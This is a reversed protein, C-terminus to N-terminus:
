TAGKASGKANVEDMIVACVTAVNTNIQPIEDIRLNKTKTYIEGPGINYRTVEVREILIPPPRRYPMCLFNCLREKYAEDESNIFGYYLTPKLYDTIGDLDDKDQTTGSFWSDDIKNLVTDLITDIKEEGCKKPDEWGKDIDDDEESFREKWHDKLIKDRTIKCVKVYRIKIWGNLSLNDWMLNIRENGNTSEWYHKIDSDALDGGYLSKEIPTTFKYSRKNMDFIIWDNRIKLSIEKNFVDIESQITALFPRRLIMTENRTKLMDIIMFDSSFLFKVIKVLINEVTGLPVKKTMNAMEVIMNTKKLKVLKLHEFMSKPMINISAGLDKGLKAYHRKERKSSTAFIKLNNLPKLHHVTGKSLLKKSSNQDNKDMRGNRFKKTSIRRFEQEHTRGLKAKKELLYTITSEHKTDLHDVSPAQNGRTLTFYQEMTLNKINEEAMIIRGSFGTTHLTPNTLRKKGTTVLKIILSDSLDGVLLKNPTPDLLIEMTVTPSHLIVLKEILFNFRERPLPKTFIDALQYETRIFYLEVIGNEVQEEAFPVQDYVPRIDADVIYTIGNWSRTSIDKKDSETGSSETVVLEADLAKSINVKVEQM